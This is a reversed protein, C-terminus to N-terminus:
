KKRSRKKNREEIESYIMELINNVHHHFDMIEDRSIENAYYKERYLKSIEDSYEWVLKMNQNDLLKQMDDVINQWYKEIFDKSSIGNENNRDYREQILDSATKKTESM